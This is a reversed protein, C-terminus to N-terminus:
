IDGCDFVLDHECGDVVDSVLGLGDQFVICIFSTAM